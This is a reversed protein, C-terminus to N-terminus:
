LAAEEAPSRPPPLGDGTRPSNSSISDPVPLGAARAIMEQVAPTSASDLVSPASQMAEALTARDSMQELRAVCQPRAESHPALAELEEPRLQGLLFQRLIRTEPCSIVDAM